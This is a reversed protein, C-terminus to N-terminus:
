LGEVPAPHRVDSSPWWTALPRPEALGSLRLPRPDTATIQALLDYGERSEVEWRALEARAEALEARVQELQDTRVQLAHHLTAEPASM